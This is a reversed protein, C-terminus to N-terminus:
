LAHACCTAATATRLQNISSQRIDNAPVDPLLSRPVPCEAMLCDYEFRGCEMMKGREDWTVALGHLQGNSWHGSAAATGDARYAM